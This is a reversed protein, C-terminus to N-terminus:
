EGSIELRRQEVFKKLDKMGDNTKLDVGIFDEEKRIRKVIVGLPIWPM